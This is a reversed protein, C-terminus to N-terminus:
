EVKLIADPFRGEVLSGPDRLERRLAFELFEPAVRM